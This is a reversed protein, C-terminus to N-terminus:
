IQENFVALQQFYRQRMTRSIDGRVSIDRKWATYKRQKRRVQSPECEERFQPLDIMASPVIHRNSYFKKEKIHKVCNQM